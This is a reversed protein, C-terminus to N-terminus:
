TGGSNLLWPKCSGALQMSIEFFILEFQFICTTALFFQIRNQYYKVWSFTYINATEHKGTLRRENGEGYASIHDKHRLSLNLIAKKIAEYGGEERM